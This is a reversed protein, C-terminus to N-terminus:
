EYLPNPLRDGSNKWLRQGPPAVVWLETFRIMSGSWVRCSSRRFDLRGVCQRDADSGEHYGGICRRCLRPLDNFEVRMGAPPPHVLFDRPFRIEFNNVIM